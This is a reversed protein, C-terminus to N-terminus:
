TTLTVLRDFNDPAFIMAVMADTRSLLMRSMDKIHSWAIHARTLALEILGVIFHHTAAHQLSVATTAGVPNFINNNSRHHRLQMIRFHQILQNRSCEPAKNITSGMQKTFNDAVDEADAETTEIEVAVEETAIAVDDQDM